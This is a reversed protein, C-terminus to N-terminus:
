FGLSRNRKQEAKTFKPLIKSWDTPTKRKEEMVKEHAAKREASQQERIAKAEPSNYDLKKMPRKPQINKADPNKGEVSINLWM